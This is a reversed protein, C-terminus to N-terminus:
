LGGEGMVMVPLTRAILRLDLGLSWNGIYYLDLLVMDQFGVTSRATVQWLGTCGPTVDLRRAQWDDFLEREYPMCPRPGVLSMDGRLVNILQPLEDLSTRRLFRGIRTIRPDDVLKFIRRGEADTSAAEDNMWARVYDRHASSHAGAIMSRFKLFTFTRGHRGVRRQAYLVPGPSSLKVCLAIAILLPSLVLIGFSAGIVDVARKLTARTGSLPSPMLRLMPVGDFTALPVRREFVGFAESLAWVEVGTEVLSQALSVLEDRSLEESAVVVRDVEGGEIREFVDDLEGLYREPDVRLPADPDAAFGLCVASGSVARELETGVRAAREGAGLVITRSAAGRVLAAALPRMAARAALVAAATLVAAFLAGRAQWGAASNLTVVASIGFVTGLATAAVRTMQRRLPATAAERYVGALGLCATACLAVLVALGPGPASLGVVLAPATACLISLVALDLAAHALDVARRRRRRRAPASARVRRPRQAHATLPTSMEVAPVAATQSRPTM